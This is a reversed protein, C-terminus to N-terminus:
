SGQQAGQALQLGLLGLPELPPELAQVLVLVSGLVLGLGLQLEPEQALGLLPEQERAQLVQPHMQVAAEHADCPPVYRRKELPSSPPPVMQRHEQLLPKLHEPEM